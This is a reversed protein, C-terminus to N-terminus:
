PWIWMYVHKRFRAQFHLSEFVSVKSFAANDHPRAFVSIESFKLIASLRRIITVKIKCNSELKDAQKCNCKATKFTTLDEFVIIINSSREIHCPQKNECTRVCPNLPKSLFRLPGRLEVDDDTWM